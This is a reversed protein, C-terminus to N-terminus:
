VLRSKAKYLLFFVVFGALGGVLNAVIDEYEFSRKPIYKQLYEVLIPFIITFVLLNTLLKKWDLQNEANLTGVRCWLFTLVAFIGFHVLKDAHPFTPTKPLNNGPTLLAILVIVLWIIAPLLRHNNLSM